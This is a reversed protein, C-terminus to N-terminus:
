GVVHPTMDVYGQILTMLNSQLSYRDSGRFRTSKKDVSM